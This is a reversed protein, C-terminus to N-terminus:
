YYMQLTVKKRMGYGFVFVMFLPKELHKIGANYETVQTKGNKPDYKCAVAKIYYNNSEMKFEDYVENVGAMSDIPIDMIKSCDELLSKGLSDLSEYAEKVSKFGSGFSQSFLSMSILILLISLNFRKISILIKNKKM